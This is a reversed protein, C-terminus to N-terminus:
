EKYKLDETQWNQLVSLMDKATEKAGNLDQERYNGCEERKAGPIEGSFQAIYAFSEKVLAIAQAHSIHNRVLFYFGTRCGMPGVYIVSDSLSSNRAYTAFLNGKELKDHNVTFSAIKNM